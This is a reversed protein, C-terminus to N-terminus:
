SKMKIMGLLIEAETKIEADDTNEIIEDALKRAKQLEEVEMYARAASYLYNPVSPSDKASRAAKEYNQAAERINGENYLCDAYGAYAASTLLPDDEYDDLYKKFYIRANEFDGQQWYYRALFFCGQGAAKVGKYNEILEQMQTEAQQVNGQSMALSAQTFLASAELNATRKSRSIFSVIVIVALIAIAVWMITRANNEVYDKAKITYTVFKDEKLEQKTIRKRPKLM